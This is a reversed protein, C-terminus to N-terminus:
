AAEKKKRPKATAPKATKVAPKRARKPKADSEAAAEAKVEGADGAEGNDDGAVSAAQQGSGLLQELEKVATESIIVKEHYLLDYINLAFSNVVKTSQVNRTSLMLNENDFSDVILTKGEHGLGKLSAIFDKTKPKDLKWENV